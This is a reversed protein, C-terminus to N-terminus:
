VNPYLSILYQCGVGVGQWVRGEFHSGAFRGSIYTNRAQMALSGDLGITGQFAGFSVNSESVFWNQIQVPSKCPGLPDHTATGSGAYQGNQPAASVAGPVPLPGAPVALNLPPEALSSVAQPPTPTPNM